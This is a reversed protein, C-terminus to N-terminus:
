FYGKMLQNIWEPTRANEIRDFAPVYPKLDLVPSGDIADLGKVKVIGKEVGVIEVSTVGISNPRHRARQAFSGVEPMTELGRPRRVLDRSPDFSAEHMLFLVVAHSFEELGRLGAVYPRALHIESIVDGWGEDTAERIPSRVIGITKLLM